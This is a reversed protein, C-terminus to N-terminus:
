LVFSEEEEKCSWCRLTQGVNNVIFTKLCIFLHFAPFSFEEPVVCLGKACNSMMQAKRYGNKEKHARPCVRIPNDMETRKGDLEGLHPPLDM